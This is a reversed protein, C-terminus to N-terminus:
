RDEQTTLASAKEAAAILREAPGFRAAEILDRLAARLRENEAEAKAREVGNEDCARANSQALARLQEVEALEGEYTQWTEYVPTSLLARLQEVEARLSRAWEQATDFLEAEAGAAQKWEDREAELQAVQARLSLADEHSIAHLVVGNGDKWEAAFLDDWREDVSAPREQKDTDSM